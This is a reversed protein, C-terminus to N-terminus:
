AFAHLHLATDPRTFVPNAAPASLSSGAAPNRGFSAAFSAPTASQEAQRQQQRSPDGGLSFGRADPAPTNFVPDAVRYPRADTSAIQSQWERAITDRLEPSDTRFTTQVVGNKYEVRVSLRETDSFNFRVEVSNREVAWLGDAIDRIERVIQAAQPASTTAAPETPFPSADGRLATAFVSGAQAAGLDLPNHSDSKMPVGWNAVSTGVARSSTKVQEDDVNLFKNQSTPEPAKVGAKIESPTFVGSEANKEAAVKAVPKAPVPQASVAASQAAQLAPMIRDPSVPTAAAVTSALVDATNAAAASKTAAPAASTVSPASTAVAPAPAAPSAPPTSQPAPAVPKFYAPLETGSTETLRYDITEAGQALLEHVSPAPVEADSDVVPAATDGPLEFSGSLSSRSTVAAAPTSPTATANKGTTVLDTACTESATPEASAIAAPALLDLSLTPAPPPPLPAAPAGMLALLAALQEATLRNPESSIEVATDSVQVSKDASKASVTKESGGPSSKGARPGNQQPATSSQSLVSDFSAGTDSAPLDDALAPTDLSPAPPCATPFPSLPTPM